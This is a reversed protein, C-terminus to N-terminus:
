ESRLVAAPRTRAAIAAPAAAILNAIVLALVATLVVAVTPVVPVSAIGLDDAFRSWL